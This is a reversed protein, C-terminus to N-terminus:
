GLPQLVSGVLAAGYASAQAADAVVVKRGSREGLLKTWAPSKTFGGSGLIREAPGVVEELSRLIVILNDTV